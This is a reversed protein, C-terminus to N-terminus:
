YQLHNLRRFDKFDPISHIELSKGYDRELNSLCENYLSKLNIKEEWVPSIKDQPPDWLLIYEVWPLIAFNWHAFANRRHEETSIQNNPTKRPSSKINKIYYKYILLLLIYNPICEAYLLPNIDTDSFSKKNKINNELAELTTSKPDLCSFIDNMTRNFTSKSNWTLINIVFKLNNKNLPHNKFFDRIMNKINESMVFWEIVNGNSDTKELHINKLIKEIWGSFDLNDINKIIYYYNTKKYKKLVDSIKELSDWRITCEFDKWHSDSAPNNVYIGESCLAYNSHAIWDRIEQFLQKYSLRKSPDNPKIIDIGNHIDRFSLYLLLSNKDINNNEVDDKKNFEDIKQVKKNLKKELDQRDQLINKMRNEDNNTFAVMREYNLHYEDGNLDKWEKMHKVHNDIQKIYRNHLPNDLIRILVDNNINNLNEDITSIFDILKIFDGLIGAKFYANCEWLCKTKSFLSEDFYHKIENLFVFVEFDIWKLKHQPLKELTDLTCDYNLGESLVDALDNHRNLAGKYFEKLRKRDPWDPPNNFM